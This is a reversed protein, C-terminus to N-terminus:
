ESQSQNRLTGPFKLEELNLYEFFYKLKVFRYWKNKIRRIIKNLIDLRLGIQAIQYNNKLLGIAYLKKSFELKLDMIPLTHVYKCQYM